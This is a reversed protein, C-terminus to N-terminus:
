KYGFNVYCTSSAVAGTDNDAIGTTMFACIGTGMTLGLPSVSVLGGGGGAAPAPVILRWVPTGAGAVVSTANYIKLYAINASNNQVSIHYLQGASGKVVIGSNAWITSSMTLGGTTGAVLQTIGTSDSAVTVRLTGADVAGNNVSTATGVLQAINVSQNAALSGISSSGPGLSVTGSATVTGSITLSQDNAITVPFSNPSDTNGLAIPSGGVQTINTPAAGGGGGSSTVPMPNAVTVKILGGNTDTYYVGDQSM